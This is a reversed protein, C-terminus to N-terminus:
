FNFGGEPVADNQEFALQGNVESPGNIIPDDTSSFFKDVINYAKQYVQANEHHQLSELKDLGGCNEILLAIREAKGMNTGAQLINILGDLVVIVTKWDKAELMNCLPPLVNYQLLVSIQEISGGSTFNTVAWVAEKQSKYDGSQLVNLLPMLVGSEIVHQIQNHNGATINSVTWAAEKVINSKPHVLLNCLQTLGGANIVSDTQVDTGTVINGVTRLAPTLVSVAPNSLHAVLQPVMGTDVIAQIKDNSGDTLYSLAWCTDALVDNDNYNLLKNLLPLCLRVSEFSPPPSKHRCLNSITWVVNRLFGTSIDPTVLEILAPMVNHSLVLDRTVTGDGAINGLAWVAQEAVSSNPSSLLAVLKPLAGGKVVANTQESTGSAVNTLAWAAEFQLVPNNFNSLFEICRPLFGSNIMDDIPPHREKSLTKRAAQTSRLQIEEDHSMMGEVIENISLQPTQINYDQLPSCPEGEGGSLNRKKLLQDDKRAKRLEVSVEYRRRRLEDSNKANNKYNTIRSPVKNERGPM